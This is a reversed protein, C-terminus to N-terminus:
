IGYPESLVRKLHMPNLMFSIKIDWQNLIFGAAKDAELRTIEAKYGYPESLVLFM